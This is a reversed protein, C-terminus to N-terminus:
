AWEEEFAEMEERIHEAAMIAALEHGDPSGRLSYDTFCDNCHWEGDHDQYWINVTAGRWESRFKWEGVEFECFISADLEYFERDEPGTM